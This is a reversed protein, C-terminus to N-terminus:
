IEKRYNVDEINFCFEKIIPYRGIIDKAKQLIVEYDGKEDFCIIRTDFVYYGDKYKWLHMDKCEDVGEIDHLSQKIKRLSKEFNKPVQLLLVTSTSKLLPVLSILILISIIASCIPDSILFNYYKIM